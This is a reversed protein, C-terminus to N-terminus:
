RGYWAMRRREYLQPDPRNWVVDIFIKRDKKSLKKVDGLTGTEFRQRLYRARAARKVINM